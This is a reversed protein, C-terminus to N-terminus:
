RRSTLSNSPMLYLYLTTEKYSQLALLSFKRAKRMCFLSWIIRSHLLISLKRIVILSNKTFRTMRVVPDKDFLDKTEIFSIIVDGKRLEFDPAGYEKRKPENIVNIPTQNKKSKPLMSKLLTELSGRFSHETTEDTQYIDNVSTIYQIINENM